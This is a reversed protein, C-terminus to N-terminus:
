VWMSVLGNRESPGVSWLVSVRDVDDKLTLRRHRIKLEGEREDRATDEFTSSVRREENKRREERLSRLITGGTFLGAMWDLGTEM